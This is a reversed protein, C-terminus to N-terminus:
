FITLQSAVQLPFTVLVDSCTYIKPYEGVGELTFFTVALPDESENRAISAASITGLIVLLVSLHLYGM